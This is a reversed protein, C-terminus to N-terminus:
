FLWVLSFDYLFVGILRNLCYRPLWATSKPSQNTPVYVVSYVSYLKLSCNTSFSKLFSKQQYLLLVKFLNYQLQLECTYLVSNLYYKQYLIRPYFQVKYITLYVHTTYVSYIPLIQQYLLLSSQYFQVAWSHYLFSSEKTCYVCYGLYLELM